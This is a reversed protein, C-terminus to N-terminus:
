THARARSRHVDEGSRTPAMESGGGGGGGGGVIGEDLHFEFDPTYTSM